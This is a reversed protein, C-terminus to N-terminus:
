RADNPGGKRGTARPAIPQSDLRGTEDIARGLQRVRKKLMANEKRTAAYDQLISRIAKFRKTERLHWSRGTKPNVCLMGGINRDLWDGYDVSVKPKERKTTM